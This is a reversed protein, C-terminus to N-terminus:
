AQEVDSPPEVNFSFTQPEKSPGDPYYLTAQLTYPNKLEEERLHMTFELKWGMPEIINTSAVEEGEANILLIEVYPQKQFPTIEINVRLRYGDAYPKAGMSLISTEEPTARMSNEPSFFDLTM